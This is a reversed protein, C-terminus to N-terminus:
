EVYEVGPWELRINASLNWGESALVMTVPPNLRIERRKALFPTCLEIQLHPARSAYDPDLLALAGPVRDGPAV